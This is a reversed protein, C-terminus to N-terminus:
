NMILTQDSIIQMAKPASNLFLNGSGAANNVTCVITQIGYCM